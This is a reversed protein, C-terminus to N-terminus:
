PMLFCSKREREEENMEISVVFDLKIRSPSSAFRNM